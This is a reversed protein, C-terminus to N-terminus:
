IIQTCDRGATSEWAQAPAVAPGPAPHGGASRRKKADDKAVAAKRAQGRATKSIYKRVGDSSDSSVTFGGSSADSDDSVLDKWMCGKKNPKAELSAALSADGEGFAVGAAVPSIDMEMM